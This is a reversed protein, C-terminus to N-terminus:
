GELKLRKVDVGNSKLFSVAFQNAGFCVINEEQAYRIAFQIAPSIASLQVGTRRLKHRTAVTRANREHAVKRRVHIVSMEKDCQIIVQNQFCCAEFHRLIKNTFNGSLEGPRVHFLDGSWQVNGRIHYFTSNQM